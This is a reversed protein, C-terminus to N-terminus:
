QPSASGVLWARSCGQPPSDKGGPRTRESHDPCNETPNSNELDECKCQTGSNVWGTSLPSLSYWHCLQLLSQLCFPLQFVTLVPPRLPPPQAAESMRWWLCWLVRETKLVSCLCLTSKTRWFRSAAQFKFKLCCLQVQSHRDKLPLVPLTGWIRDIVHKVQYSVRERNSKQVQSARVSVTIGLRAPPQPRWKDFQEKTVSLYLHIDDSNCNGWWWCPTKDDLRCTKCDMSAM